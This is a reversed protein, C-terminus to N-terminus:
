VVKKLTPADLYGRSPFPWLRTLRLVSIYKYDDNHDGALTRGGWIVTGVGPFNRICNIGLLNLEECKSKSLNIELEKIGRLPSEIGAPTKWVGHMSDTSAFLGAIAGCPVFTEVKGSRQADKQRIWPFFRRMGLLMM